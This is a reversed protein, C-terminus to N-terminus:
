NNNITGIKKVKSSYQELTPDVWTKDICKSQYNTKNKRVSHHFMNYFSINPNFILSNNVWMMFDDSLNEKGFKEILKNIIDNKLIEREDDTEVDNMFNREYIAKLLYKIQEQNDSYFKFYNQMFDPVLNITNYIGHEEFFYIEKAIFDMIERLSKYNFEVFNRRFKTPIFLSHDCSKKIDEKTITPIGYDIRNFDCNYIINYTIIKDERGIKKPFEYNIDNLYIVNGNFKASKNKDYIICSSLKIEPHKGVLICYLYFFRKSLFVFSSTTDNEKLKIFFNILQKEEKGFILEQNM